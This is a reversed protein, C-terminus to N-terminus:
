VKDHLLYEPIIGVTDPIDYTGPGPYKSKKGETERVENTFGISLGTFLNKPLYYKDTYM